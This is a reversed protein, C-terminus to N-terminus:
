ECREIGVCDAGDISDMISRVHGKLLLRLREDAVQFSAIRQNPSRDSMLRRLQYSQARKNAGAHRSRIAPLPGLRLVLSCRAAAPRTQDSRCLRSVQCRGGARPRSLTSWLPPVIKLAKREVMGDAGLWQLTQVLMRESVGGIKRRLDSFRQTGPQLASLALV